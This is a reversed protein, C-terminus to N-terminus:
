EYLEPMKWTRLIEFLISVPEVPRLEAKDVEEAMFEISEFGVKLSGIVAGLVVPALAMPMGSGFERSLHHANSGEMHRRLFLTYMKSCVNTGVHCVLNSVLIGDLLRSLEGGGDVKCLNNSSANISALSSPDCIAHQLARWGVSTIDNGRLTIMQLITNRGLAEAIAIADDDNLHNDKLDLATLTPNSAIADPIHTRGRTRIHNSRFHLEEWQNDATLFRRLVDYGTDEECSGSIWFTRISPHRIVADLLPAIESWSVENNLWQLRDLRTNYGITDIVFEVVRVADDAYSLNNDMILGEFQSGLAASLPELLADTLEINRIALDFVGSGDHFHLGDVVEKIHPLLSEDYDLIQFWSPDVLGIVVEDITEDTRLAVANERLAEQFAQMDEAQNEDYGREIWHGVPLFPIRHEYNRSAVALAASLSRVKGRLSANSEDLRGAASRLQSNETRLSSTESRLSTVERRLHSLESEVSELRGQVRALIAAFGDDPALEHDDNASPPERDDASHGEGSEDELAVERRRKNTSLNETKM